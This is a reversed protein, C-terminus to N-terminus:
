LLVQGLALSQRALSALTQLCCFQHLVFHALMDFHKPRGRSRTCSWVRITQDKSGSAICYGKMVAAEEIMDGTTADESHLLFMLTNFVM